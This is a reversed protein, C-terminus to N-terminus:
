PLHNAIFTAPTISQPKYGTGKLANFHRDSTIVYAADAVIACDTFKNDDPDAEILQFRFTPNVRLVNGHDQQVLSDLSSM